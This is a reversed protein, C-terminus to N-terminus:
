KATYINIEHLTSAVEGYLFKHPYIKIRLFTELTFAVKIVIGAECQSVVM